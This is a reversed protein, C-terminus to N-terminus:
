PSLPPANLISRSLSVNVIAPPVPSALVPEPLETVSAISEVTAVRTPDCVNVFLVKVLGVIVLPTNFVATEPDANKSSSSREEFEAVLTADWCDILAYTSAVIVACSKSTVESLPVIAISKSLSVNVIAPPVPISLVPALLVIVIAISEVTAVKVPVCVRVFLVKVLGVKFEGVIVLTVAVVKDKVSELIM